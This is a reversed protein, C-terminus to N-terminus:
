PAATTGLGAHGRVTAGVETTGQYLKAEPAVFAWAGDARCTYIQVGKGNVTVLPQDSTQQLGSMLLLTLSLAFMRM